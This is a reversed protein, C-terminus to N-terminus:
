DRLFVVELQRSLYRFWIKRWEAVDPRVDFPDPVRNFYDDRLTCYRAWVEGTDRSIRAM